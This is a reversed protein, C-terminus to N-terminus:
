DDAIDKPAATYSSPGFMVVIKPMAEFADGRGSM